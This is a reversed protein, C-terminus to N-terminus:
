RGIREDPTCFLDPETPGGPWPPRVRQLREVTLFQRQLDSPMVEFPPTQSRHAAMAQRRLTEHASTDIVTTIAEDPTGLEGLELHAADPQSARLHEVWQGMLTRSLCQLYTRPTRGRARDVALLTADRIRVHDRHGDSADLTVVVEPRFRDVVDRVAEAVDDLPVAALSETPPEGAMGSDTWDLVTVESVGLIAAAQHLEAERVEPLQSPDVACGPAPTGAEGRTACCVMTQAGRAAAHALLSGCGFTEDDPHAVVVLLRRGTM